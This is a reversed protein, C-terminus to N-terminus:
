KQGMKVTVHNEDSWPWLMAFYVRNDRDKLFYLTQGMRIGGFNEEAEAVDSTFKKDSPNVMDGFLKKLKMHLMDLREQLIVAEFYADSEIRIADFGINKIEETLQKFQM